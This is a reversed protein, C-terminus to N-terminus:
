FAGWQYPPDKSLQYEPAGGDTVPTGAIEM